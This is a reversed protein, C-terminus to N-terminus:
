ISVHGADRPQSDGRLLSQNNKLSKRILDAIPKKRQVRPRALLIENKPDFLDPFITILEERAEDGLSILAQEGLYLSEAPLDNAFVVQHNDLLIHFYDVHQVEQDIFVGPLDILKIAPLLAETVGLVRKVIKSNVYICHQRSVYLTKSPNQPGIAGNEIRVPYLKPNNRLDERTFHRHGIWRVPQFGGDLTDVLEGVELEEVPVQGRATRIMTGKCYCVAAKYIDLSDNGSGTVLYTGTAHVSEVTGVGPGAEQDATQADLKNAFILEGSEPDIQFSYLAQDGYSGM